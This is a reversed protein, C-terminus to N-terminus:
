GRCVDAVEPFASSVAAASPRRLGAETEQTRQRPPSLLVLGLSTLMFAVALASTLKAMFPAAGGGGFVSEGGGLLTGLGGKQPQQILVVVVLLASVLVHLFILVGYM